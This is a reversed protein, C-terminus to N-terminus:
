VPDVDFIIKLRALRRDLGLNEAMQHLHAKIKSLRSDNRPIKILVQHIYENRIRGVPPEGPGLIMKEGFTKKLQAAFLTAGELSITKDNHRFSIEILRTYPPYYLHSREELQNRLFNEVGNEKIISFIPNSPDNTQILVTGKQKRRGARGSVQVMMQFAREHSRFDPFYMMRDAELVGVLGVQDFDLGKTVMQTGILVKTKGNSFDELIKEYGTKSRTTDTDMRAVEIGPFLLKIEEEIKQTGQGITQLNKSKCATCERPLNERYGCYHCMLTHRYQHYTLSVACHICQPVHGCDQCELVPSYGRRNQFLIIQENRDLTTQISKIMESSFVGKMRKQKKEASVNITRIDPLVAGGYRSTLKAITFHGEQGLFYSEVSPTGSGMLVKAHHIKALMLATDRAHYRPSRDQKYSTDHEEDVIILGLHEFPLLVSSRVGVVLRIKGSAVGNWVEVRENDSFKSHYVGLADGFVQKLRMVIQTTLAIEPLLYLAQAESELVLKIISIYVETKGSGTVGFLLAPKNEQFSKLILNKAATQEENLQPPALLQSPSDPFRSIIKDFSELVGKKILSKLASDSHGSALLNRKSIGELNLEPQQLVPIKNLMELLLSEQKEKSKLKEFVEELNIKDLYNNQFRIRTESKPQYSEHLEETLLIAEKKILSKITKSLKKAPIQKTLQTFSTPGGALMELILSEQSTMPTEPNRSPHLQVISESSVKLGSPMAAQLVEGVTCMYYDAMWRFLSIQNECFVPHGDAVDIIERVEYKQPKDQHVNILIGTLIKKSGFPVIVRVLPKALARLDEPIQYTFEGGVPVPLIVNGYFPEVAKFLPPGEDPSKM